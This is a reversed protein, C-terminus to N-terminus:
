GIVLYRFTRDAESSNAHHVLLQGTTRDEPASYMTGAAKEAAATLTMPDWDVFCTDTLREDRLMTAASNVALTMEGTANIKGLNQRNSARAMQVRHQAQDVSDFPVSPFREVLPAVVEPFPAPSFAVVNSGHGGRRRGRERQREFPGIDRRHFLGARLHPRTRM